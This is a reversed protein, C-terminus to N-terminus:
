LSTIVHSVAQNGLSSSDKDIYASQTLTRGASEKHLSRLAWPLHRLQDLFTLRKHFESRAFCEFNYGIGLLKTKTM